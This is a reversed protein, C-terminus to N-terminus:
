GLIFGMLCSFPDMAFLAVDYSNRELLKLVKAQNDQDQLYVQLETEFRDLQNPDMNAVKQARTKLEAM